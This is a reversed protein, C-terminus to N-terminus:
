DGLIVEVAMETVPTFTGGVTIRDIPVVSEYSETWESTGLIQYGPRRCIAKDRARVKRARGPVFGPDLERAQRIARALHRVYGPVAVSGRRGPGWDSALGVILAGSPLIQTGERWDISGEGDVFLKLVYM